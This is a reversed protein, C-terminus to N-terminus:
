SRDNDSHPRGHRAEYFRRIVLKAMECMRRDSESLNTPLEVADWVVVEEPVELAAALRRLVVLSPRRHDNELLSLFSPTVDATRALDQQSIGRDVRLKRITKGLQIM